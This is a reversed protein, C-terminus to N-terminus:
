VQPTESDGFEGRERALKRSRMYWYVAVGGMLMIQAYVIAGLVLVGAKAGQIMGSEPNGFCVSCASATEAAFMVLLAAISFVFARQVSAVTRM